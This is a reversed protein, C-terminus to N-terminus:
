ITVRGTRFPNIGITSSKSKLKGVTLTEVVMTKEGATKAQARDQWNKLMNRVRDRTNLAKNSVVKGSTNPMFLEPGKEGVMDIM